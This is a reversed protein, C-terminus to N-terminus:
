IKCWMMMGHCPAHPVGFELVVCGVAGLQGRSVVLLEGEGPNADYTSELRAGLGPPQNRVHQRGGFSWVGDGVGM